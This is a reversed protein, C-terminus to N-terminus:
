KFKIVLKNSLQQEKIWALVEETLDDLTAKNSAVKEIFAQVNKSAQMDSIVKQANIIQDQYRTIWNGNVPWKTEYRKLEVILTTLQDPNKVLRKMQELLGIIDKNQNKVYHTWNMKLEDDIAKIPKTFEKIQERNYQVLGEKKIVELQKIQQNLNKKPFITEDMQHLALYSELIRKCIALEEKTFQNYSKMRKAAIRQNDVQKFEEFTKRTEKIKSLLM